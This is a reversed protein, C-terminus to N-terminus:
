MAVKSQQMNKEAGYSLSQELNYPLNNPNFYYQKAYPEKISGSSQDYPSPLMILDKEDIYPGLSRNEGEYYPSPDVYDFVVPYTANTSNVSREADNRMYEDLMFGTVGQEVLYEKEKVAPIFPAHGLERMFAYEIGTRPLNEVKRGKKIECVGSGVGGLGNM